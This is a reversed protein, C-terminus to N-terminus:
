EAVSGAVRTWDASQHLARRAAGRVFLHLDVSRPLTPQAEGAGIAAVMARLDADGTALALEVAALWVEPTPVDCLRERAVAVVGSRDEPPLLDFAVLSHLTTLARAVTTPDGNVALDLLQSSLSALAPTVM